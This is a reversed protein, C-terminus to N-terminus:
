WCSILRKAGLFLGLITGREGIKEIMYQSCSPKYRCNYEAGTATRLIIRMMPSITRQYFHIIFIVLNSVNFRM